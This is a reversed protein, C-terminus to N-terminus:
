GGEQAAEHQVQQVPEEQAVPEERAVEHQVWRQVVEQAPVQQVPREGSSQAGAGGRGAGGGVSRQECCCSASWGLATSRYTDRTWVPEKRYNNNEVLFMTAKTKVQSSM